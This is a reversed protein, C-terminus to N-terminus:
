GEAAAHVVASVAAVRCAAFVCSGARVQQQDTNLASFDSELARHSPQPLVAKLRHQLSLASGYMPSVPQLSAVSAPHCGVCRRLDVVLERRVTDGGQLQVPEKEDEERTASRTRRKAIVPLPDIFLQVVVVVLLLCTFVRSSSRRANALVQLVNDYLVKTGGTYEDRDVRWRWHSSPLRADACTGDARRGSVDFVPPRAELGDRIVREIARGSGPQLVVVVTAEEVSDVVVTAYAPQPRGNPGDMAEADPSLVALERHTIQSEKFTRKQRSEGVFTM